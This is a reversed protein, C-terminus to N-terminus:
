RRRTKGQRGRRRALALGGLALLVLAGPEPIAEPGVPPLLGPNEYAYVWLAYDMGTITGDHDWDGNQWDGPSGPGFTEYNYVWEAYDMGTVAGDMDCDGYYTYRIVM